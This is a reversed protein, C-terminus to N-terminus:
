REPKKKDKDKDKDSQRAMDVEENANGLTTSM